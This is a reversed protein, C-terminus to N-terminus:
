KKLIVSAKKQFLIKSKQQLIKNIFLHENEELPFSQIVKYKVEFANQDGKQPLVFRMYVYDAILSQNKSLTKARKYHLDCQEFDGGLLKTRGGYYAIFIAENIGGLYEPYVAACRTAIAHIISLDMLSQPDSLNHFSLM